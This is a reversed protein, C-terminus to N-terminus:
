IRRRRRIYLAIGILIIIVLGINIIVIAGTKVSIIIDAQSFDDETVNKNKLISDKDAVNLINSAKSIEATNYTTGFNNQTMKKTLILTVEKTEGPNITENSLSTTYLNGDNGQYWSTNLTKDFTVDQPMYDVIESVTGPIEGENTVKIKYKMLVTTYPIRKTSIEAKALKQDNFKKETSKGNDIITIQTVTKDLKLDFIKNKIFGADINEINNDKLELIDTSAIGNNEKAVIDSNINEAIGDKQYITPKYTKEDYNFTIIYKGNSINQFSYKGNEDTTAKSVQTNNIAELLNVTIGSIGNDETDRQGNEDKDLWVMGSIANKQEEPPEVPSPEDPVGNDFNEFKYTVSKEISVGEEPTVILTAVAEKLTAQEEDITTEVVMKVQGNKSLTAYECMENYDIDDLSIERKQGDEIIYINNIVMGMPIDMYIVVQSDIASNGTILCEYNLKDGTTLTTKEQSGVFDVTFNIKDQTIIVKLTNSITTVENEKATAFIGIEEEAKTEQIEKVIYRQLYEKKENALLSVHFNIIGNEDPYIDLENDETEEEAEETEEPIQETVDEYIQTYDYELDKPMYVSIDINSLDENTLNTIILNTDIKMDKKNIQGVGDCNQIEVKVKADKLPNTYTACNTNEIGTGSIKINGTMTNTQTLKKATIQYEFIYSENPKLSIKESVYEECEEDPLYYTYMRTGEINPDIGEIEVNGWFVANEMTASLGINEIINNTTNTVKVQYTIGQGNYIEDNNHIQTKGSIAAMYIQLGDEKITEFEPQFINNENIQTNEETSGETSEEASEESLLQISKPTSVEIENNLEMKQDNITYTINEKVYGSVNMILNEPVNINYLISITEKEAMTEACIKFRKVTAMDEVNEVWNEGETETSYTISIQQNDIQPQQAYTMKLNNAAEINSIIGIFEVNKVEFNNNNVITVKRTMQKAAESIPLELKETQEGLTEIKKNEVNEENAYGELTAYTFVGAKAEVTIPANWTKTENGENSIKLEINETFSPLDKYLEIDASIVIMSNNAKETRYDTQMGEYKLNITICGEQNVDKYAKIVQMEEEYIAKISHVQISKVQKPLTITIQPNKYLADMINKTNLEVSIEVNKNTDTTVLSTPNVAIKANPEAKILDTTSTIKETKGSYKLIMENEIKEFSEVQEQTLELNGQFYKLNQITLEGIQVPTGIIKLTAKTTNKPYSVIYNGMADKETQSDITAIVQDNGTQENSIVVQIQVTEGFIRTLEEESIYTNQLYMNKSLKTSLNTIFYTNGIDITVDTIQTIEPIELTAKEGIYAKKDTGTTLYQKSMKQTSIMESSILQTTTNIEYDQTLEKAVNEQKTYYKTNIKINTQNLNIINATLKTEYVYIIKYTDTEKWTIKQNENPTNTYNIKLTGQEANYENEIQKGNRMVKINTPKQNGIVPVQVELSETEKPLTNDNTKVQIVQELLTQTDTLQLYKSFNSTVTTDVSDTWQTFIQISKEIQKEINSNEKYKATLTFTNQRALYTTEINEQKEFEIPLNIITNGTVLQKLYIDNNKTDISQIHSDNVQSEAIKFNPNDIHVKAENIVGTNEIKIDIGLTGGEKINLEKQHQKTEDVYYVDFSVNTSSIKTEQTELEEYIALSVGNIVNLLQIMTLTMILIIAVMKNLNQAKTQM